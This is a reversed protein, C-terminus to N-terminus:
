KAPDEGPTVEDLWENHLKLLRETLDPKEGLYNDKEPNEGALTGLFYPKAGRGILKWDGERVAWHNSWQWHMVKHHSAVDASRIIPLLSAGDLEVEPLPVDCLELITPLYDAATIAQDRVVGQPLRKPFSIIAPVRIGGELFTGKCGLWKGTNGGGGHAGYYTDKPLGSAHGDVRIAANEQSYGNDSMFAVITNERLGLQDLKSLIWGMRDDTTSVVKAYSRRPMPLDKYREDFKEDAQEPYHPLNFAVYLFFPNRKNRELFGVAEETMLDPFYEGPKFVEETGRYLDHYGRGHLFYHNYNHIFGDRLGFFEDFGQETPGSDFAAGLHWKGFLATRYGAARLAEALTVEGRAMNRGRPGKANGQVWNTVGSRQPQRGTMLLARAPCCVTHAYAQTFRVGTAALSDMNPTYLDKSGFCNVDLTGQDDTFFLIVNPGTQKVAAAQAMTAWGLLLMAAGAAITTPTIRRNHNENM